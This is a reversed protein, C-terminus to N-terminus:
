ECFGEHMWKQEETVSLPHLLAGVYNHLAVSYKGPWCM